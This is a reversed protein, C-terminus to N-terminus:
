LIIGLLEPLAQIRHDAQVEDPLSGYGYDAFITVAGCDRGMRVGWESDEVHYFGKDTEFSELLEGLYRPDPKGFASDDPTQMREIFDWLGIAQLARTQTTRDGSTCALLRYGRDQLTTLVEVAGDMPSALDPLNELYHPKVYDEFVGAARDAPCGLRELMTVAKLGILSLVSQREPRAQGSRELGFAFAQYNAEESNILVGDLDFVVLGQTM